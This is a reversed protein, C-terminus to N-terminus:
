FEEWFLLFYDMIFIIIVGLYIFFRNFNMNISVSLYILIPLLLSIGKVLFKRWDGTVYKSFDIVEDYSFDGSPREDGEHEKNWWKDFKNEIKM